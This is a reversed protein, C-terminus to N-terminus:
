GTSLCNDLVVPPLTREYTRDMGINAETDICYM